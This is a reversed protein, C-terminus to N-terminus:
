EDWEAFFKHGGVEIVFRQSEHWDSECYMPAYFYLIFEDTIKYGDDFVASVAKKVSDSPNNHWGAYKYKERVESPLLGDKLCANLLCQAVLVQGDYSEIGSEGMVIREAVERQYDNLYFLSDNKVVDTVTETETEIKIAEKNENIAGIEISEVITEIPETAKETYGEENIEIEIKKLNETTICNNKTKSANGISQNTNTKGCGCMTITTTLLLCVTWMKYTNM